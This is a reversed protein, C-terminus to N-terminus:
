QAGAKAIENALIRQLLRRITAMDNPSLGMWVRAPRGKWGTQLHLGYERARGRVGLVIRRKTISLIGTSRMLAGTSVLNVEAGTFTGGRRELKRKAYDTSYSAFPQDNVDRGQEFTRTVISELAVFALKRTAEGSFAQKPLGGIRHLKAGM